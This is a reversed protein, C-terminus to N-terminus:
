DRNYTACSGSLGVMPEGSLITHPWGTLNRQGQYGFFDLWAHSPYPMVHMCTLRCPMYAVIWTFDFTQLESRHFTFSHIDGFSDDFSLDHSHLGVVNSCDPV